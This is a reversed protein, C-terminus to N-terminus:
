RETRSMRRAMTALDDYVNWDNYSSKDEDIWDDEKWTKWFDEYQGHREFGSMCWETEDDIQLEESLFDKSVVRQGINSASANNECSAAMGPRFVPWDCTCRNGHHHGSISREAPKGEQLTKLIWKLNPDQAWEYHDDDYIETTTLNHTLRTMIDKGLPHELDVVAGQKLLYEISQACRIAVEERGLDECELDSNGEVLFIANCVAWLGQVLLRRGAETQNNARGAYQLMMYFVPDSCYMLAYALPQLRSLEMTIFRAMGASAVPANLIGGQLMLKITPLMDEDSVKEPWLRLLLSLPQYFIGGMHYIANLIRPLNGNTAAASLQSHLDRTNTDMIAKEVSKFNIGGKLLLQQELERLELESKVKELGTSLLMNSYNILTFDLFYKPLDVSSQILTERLGWGVPRMTIVVKCVTDLDVSAKIPPTVSSDNAWLNPFHRTITSYLPIPDEERIYSLHGSTHAFLPQKSRALMYKAAQIKEQLLAYLCVCHNSNPLTISEWQRVTDRAILIDLVSLDEKEIADKFIKSLDETVSQAYKPTHLEGSIGDSAVSLRDLYRNHIQLLREMVALNRGNYAIRVPTQKLQNPHCLRNYSKREDNDEHDSYAENIIDINDFQAAMHILYEGAIAHDRSLGQNLCNLMGQTDRLKISSMWEAWLKNQKEMKLQNSGQVDLDVLNHNTLLEDALCYENNSILTYGVLTLKRPRFVTYWVHSCAVVAVILAASQGWEHLLAGWSKSIDSSALIIAPIGQLFVVSLHLLYHTFLTTSLYRWTKARLGKPYGRSDHEYLNLEPSIRTITPILSCVAINRVIWLAWVFGRPSALVPHALEALCQQDFRSLNKISIGQIVVAFVKLAMSTRVLNRAALVDKDSMTMTISAFIIDLSSYAIVFDKRNLGSMAKM